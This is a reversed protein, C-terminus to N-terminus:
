EPLQSWTGRRPRESESVTSSTKCRQNAAFEDRMLLDSRAKIRTNREQHLDAPRGFSGVVQFPDNLVDLFVIGLGSASYGFRDVFPRGAQLRKRITAADSPVAAGALENKFGVNQNVADTALEYFDGAHIV